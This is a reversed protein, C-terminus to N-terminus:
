NSSFSNMITRDLPLHYQMNQNTIVGYHQAGQDGEHICYDEQHTHQKELPSFCIRQNKSDHKYNFLRAWQWTHELRYLPFAQPMQVYTRGNTM